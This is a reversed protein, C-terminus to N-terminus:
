TDSLWGNSATQWVRAVIEVCISNGMDMQTTPAAMHM